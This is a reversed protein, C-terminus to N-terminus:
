SQTPEQWIAARKGTTRYTLRKGVIGKIARETREVDDVGLLLHGPSLSRRRGDAGPGQLAFRCEWIAGSTLIAASLAWSSRCRNRSETTSPEQPRRRYTRVRATHPTLLEEWVSTPSAALCPGLARHHEHRGVAGGTLPIARWCGRIRLRACIAFSLQEQRM